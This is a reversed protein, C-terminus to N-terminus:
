QWVGLSHSMPELFGLTSFIRHSARRSKFRTNVLLASESRVREHLVGHTVPVALGTGLEVRM